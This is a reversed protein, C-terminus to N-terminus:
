SGPPYGIGSSLAQGATPLSSPAILPLQPRSASPSRTPPGCHIWGRFSHGHSGNSKRTTGAAGIRRLHGPASTGGPHCASARGCWPEVPVEAHEVLTEEAAPAASKRTRKKKRPEPM